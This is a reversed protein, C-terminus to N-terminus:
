PTGAAKPTYTKHSMVLDGFAALLEFKSEWTTYMIGLVKGPYLDMWNLWKKAGELDDADYYDAGFVMFGNDTFHKFAKEADGWVAILMDKPIYKWSEAYSGDTMYLGEKANHNPDFMDSWVLVEAKPNVKKIIDHIQTVCNGLVQGMTWGKEKKAKQCAECTGGGRIEDMDLYYYKPAIAENLRKVQEEWIQYTKPESMCIVSQGKSNFRGYYYYSILLKDGNKIKGGPLIEIKIPSRNYKYDIGPDSVPSFDKGEEYIDGGDRNKVVLPAGPRRLINLIGTDEIRLDDVWFKGKRGGWCGVYIAVEGYEMSDFGGIVQTWDTTAQPPRDFWGLYRGKDNQGIPFWGMQDAKFDETKVWYSVRYSHYPQVKVVKNIRGRKHSDKAFNEFRLSAKGDKVVTTDIFSVEGPMDQGDFGTVKNGDYQEFSGNPITVSTDPVHRAYGNDVAYLMDKVPFGEALNMDHQVLSSGYGVSFVLPIIDIGKAKCADNVKTLNKLAEPSFLDMRDLGGSLVFGNYGHQSATNIVDLTKEVSKQNGIDCDAFFWRLPYPQKEQEAASSTFSLATVLGAVVVMWRYM